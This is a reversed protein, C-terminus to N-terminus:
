QTSSSSNHVKSGFLCLSLRIRTVLLRTLVHPLSCSVLLQFFASEMLIQFLDSRLATPSFLSLFLITIIFLALVTFLYLNVYITFSLVQSFLTVADISYFQCCMLVPFTSVISLQSLIPVIFLFLPHDFASSDISSFSSIVTMVPVFTSISSIVEHTRMLFTSFSFTLLCSASSLVTLTTFILADVFSVEAFHWPTFLM